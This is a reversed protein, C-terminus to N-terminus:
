RRIADICDGQKCAGDGDTQLMLEAPFLRKSQTKEIRMTPRVIHAAVTASFEHRLYLPGKVRRRQRRQESVFGNEIPEAQSVANRDGSQVCDDKPLRPAPSATISGRGPDLLPGCEQLVVQGGLKDDLRHLGCEAVTNQQKTPLLVKEDIGGALFETGRRDSFTEMGVATVITEHDLFRCVMKCAMLLRQGDDVHGASSGVGQQRVYM